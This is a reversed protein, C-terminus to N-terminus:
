RDEAGSLRESSSSSDVGRAVFLGVTGLAMTVPLIRMAVGVGLYRHIRATFLLQFILASVGMLAFVRGFGATLADIRDGGGETDPVALDM